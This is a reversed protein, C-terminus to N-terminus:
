SGGRLLRPQRTCGSDGDGCRRRWQRKFRHAFAEPGGPATDAYFSLHFRSGQGERDIDIQLPDPYGDLNRVRYHRLSYQVGPSAESQPSPSWRWGTGM